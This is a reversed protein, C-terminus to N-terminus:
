ADVLPLLHTDNVMTLMSNSNTTEHHGHDDVLTASILTSYHHILHNPTLTHPPPNDQSDDQSDVEEDDSSNSVEERVSRRAAKSSLQQDAVPQLSKRQYDRIPLRREGHQGHNLSYSFAGPVLPQQAGQLFDMSLTAPFADHDMRRTHRENTQADHEDLDATWDDSDKNDFLIREEDKNVKGGNKTLPADDHCVADALIVPFGQKPELEMRSDYKNKTHSATKEELSKDQELKTVSDMDHTEDVGKSVASRSDDQAQCGDNRITSSGHKTERAEHTKHQRRTDSPNMKSTKTETTRKTTEDLSPISKDHQQQQYDMMVLHISTQITENIPPNKDNKNDTQVSDSESEEGGHDGTKRPPSESSASEKNTM